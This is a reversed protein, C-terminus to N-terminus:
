LNNKSKQLISYFFGDGDPDPLRHARAKEAFESNRSLFGDVIDDNEQRLVSCTAYVLQGGEAVLEASKTLVEVQLGNYNLLKEETFLWKAEPTRRWTGSGSCPADCFVLDFPSQELLDTTSLVDVDVNARAARVPIDVMRASSIDHAFVRTDHMDAIALAKGGGGACYDLVRAGPTLELASVALQSALDQLEVLGNMFAKSNRIRRPNELVQLATNVSDLPRTAIGEEALSQAAAERTGHRLNVRLTVPARAQLVAACTAAENGLNSKWIPVLWDPLDLAEGETMDRDKPYESEALASPAYGGAGFVESPAVATSKLLGLILQRGSTGGGLAGLSRKQRLVDFVHDRVAARDKSGAFRHNRGWTTLAKEAAVGTAIEDLIDIASAYRAAPTM